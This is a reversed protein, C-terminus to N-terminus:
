GVTMDQYGATIRWVHATTCTTGVAAVTTAILATVDALTTVTGALLTTIATARQAATLRLPPLIGDLGRTVGPATTSTATPPVLLDAAHGRRGIGFIDSTASVDANVITMIAPLTTAM